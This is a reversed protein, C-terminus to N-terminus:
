IYPTFSSMVCTSSFFQLYSSGYLYIVVVAKGMRRNQVFGEQTERAGRKVPKGDKRYRSWTTGASWGKLAHGRSPEGQEFSHEGDSGMAM